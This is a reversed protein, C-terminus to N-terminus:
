SVLQGSNALSAKTIHAAPYHIPLWSMTHHAVAPHQTIPLFLHAGM